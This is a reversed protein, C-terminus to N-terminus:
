VRKEDMLLFCREGCVDRSGNCFSSNGQVCRLEIGRMFLARVRTSGYYTLGDGRGHAQAFKYARVTYTFCVRSYTISRRIRSKVKQRYIIHALSCVLLTRSVEQTLPVAPSIGRKESARARSFSLTILALRSIKVRNTTYLSFFYTPQHARLLQASPAHNKRYPLAQHSIRSKRILKM